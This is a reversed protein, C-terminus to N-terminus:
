PVPPDFKRLAKILAKIVLSVAPGIHLPKDVLCCLVDQVNTVRCCLARGWALAAPRRRWVRRVM